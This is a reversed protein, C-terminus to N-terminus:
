ATHVPSRKQLNLPLYSSSETTSWLKEDTNLKLSPTWSIKALYESPDGDINCDDLDWGPSFFQSWLNCDSSERFMLIFLSLSFLSLTLLETTNERGRLSYGALNRQACFERTLFVSTPLWERRWPIKGVWPDFRPRKHRRYKCAPGKGSVLMQKLRM